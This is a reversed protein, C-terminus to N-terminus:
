AKALFSEFAHVHNLYASQDKEIYRRMALEQEMGRGELIPRVRGPKPGHFHIISAEDSVGQWPRWNLGRPLQDWDQGFFRNLLVQDYSDHIKDFFNHRRFFEVLAERSRAFGACNFLMVGSNFSATPSVLDPALEACAGFVAPTQCSLDSLFMVDCDTYLAVPTSSLDPVLVRLFHGSAHTPDYRSGQNAAIVADSFLENRFPVVERHLRVGRRVLWATLPTEEGDYICHPTLSTNAQASVVAVKIMDSFWDTANGSYAFFWDM